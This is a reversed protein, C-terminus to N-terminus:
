CIDPPFSPSMRLCKKNHAYQVPLFRGLLIFMSLFSWYRISLWHWVQDQKGLLCCTNYPELFVLWHLFPCPIQMPVLLSFTKPHTIQFVLGLPFHLYNIPPLLHDRPFYSLFFFLDWVVASFNNSYRAIIRVQFPCSWIKLFSYLIVLHKISWDEFNLM